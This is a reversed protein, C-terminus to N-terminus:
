SLRTKKSLVHLNDLSIRTEPQAVGLPENVLTTLSNDLVKSTVAKRIPSKIADEEWLPCEGREMYAEWRKFIM